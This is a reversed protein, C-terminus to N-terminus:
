KIDGKGEEEIDFTSGCKTCVAHTGLGDKNVKDTEFEHGCNLCKVKNM